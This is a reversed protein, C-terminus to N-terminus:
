VCRDLVQIQKEAANAARVLDGAQQHTTISKIGNAVVEKLSVATQKLVALSFLFVCLVLLTLTFYNKWAASAINSYHSDDKKKERERRKKKECCLLGIENEQLWGCVKM